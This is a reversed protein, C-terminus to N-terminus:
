RDGQRPFVKREGGPGEVEIELPTIRIVRYGPAVEDGEALPLAEGSRVVLAM